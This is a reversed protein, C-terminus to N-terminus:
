RLARREAKVIGDNWTSRNLWRWVARIALLAFLVLLMILGFLALLALSLLIMM